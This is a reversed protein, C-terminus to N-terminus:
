QQMIEDPDTNDIDMGDGYQEIQKENWEENSKEWGEANKELAAQNRKMLATDATLISPTDADSSSQCGVLLGLSLCCIASLKLHPM